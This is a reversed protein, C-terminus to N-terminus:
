SFHGIVGITVFVSPLYTQQKESSLTHVSYYATYVRATLVMDYDYYQVSTNVRNLRSIIDVSSVKRRDIMGDDYVGVLDVRDRLGHRKGCTIICVEDGLM